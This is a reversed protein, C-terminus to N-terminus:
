EGVTRGTLGPRDANVRTAVAIEALLDGLAPSASWAATGIGIFDAGAAQLRTADRASACGAGVCPVTMIEAWWATLDIAAEAPSPDGFDGFAVYDAGGDAVTIADDRTGCAVGVIMDPGLRRRAEDYGVAMSLHVGDAGVAHALDVRDEILLAIDREQTPARLREAASRIADDALGPSPRLLLCAIDAAAVAASFATAM